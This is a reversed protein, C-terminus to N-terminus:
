YITKHLIAELDRRPRQKYTEDAYGLPTLAVIRLHNPINLKAKLADEPFVGVWCTDLGLSTACLVSHEFAIATDVMYYPKGDRMGSKEPDAVFILLHSAKHYASESPNYNVIEGIAAKTKEDDVVIIEFCQSNKWTPAIRAAELVQFLQNESIKKDTYKRASYRKKMTDLMIVEM